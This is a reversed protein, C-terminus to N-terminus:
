LLVGGPARRAPLRRPEVPASALPGTLHSSGPAAPEQCHRDRPRPCSNATPAGSVGLEPAIEDYTHGSLKLALFTRKREPLAAVLALAELAQAHDHHRRGGMSDHALAIFHM